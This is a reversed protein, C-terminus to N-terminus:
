KEIIVNLKGCESQPINAASLKYDFHFSHAKEYSPFIIYLPQIHIHYNHKIREFHDKLEFGNIQKLSFSEPILTFPDQLSATIGDHFYSPKLDFNLNSFLMQHSTRPKVPPKPPKPEEPLSKDTCVLFGDPFNIHLDIDNAPAEGFNRVDLELIIIPRSHYANFRDIYTSYKSLFLDVEKKYRTFESEPIPDLNINAMAKAIGVIGETIDPSIPTSPVLTPFDTRIKEILEEKNQIRTGKLTSLTYVIRNQEDSLGHFSVLLHPMASQLRLLDNKLKKNEKLIPDEDQPLRYKDNLDVCSIDFHHARLKPGIDHSILVVQDDVHDQKFKLISAMLVDDNWTPNLEYSAFDSESPRRCYDELFVNERIKTSTGTLTKYIMNLRESARDRIRQSQHTDKHKDLEIATIYPFVIIIKESDFIENFPINELPSFHLYIMTDLFLYTTKKNM